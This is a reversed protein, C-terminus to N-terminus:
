YVEIYRTNSLVYVLPIFSLNLLAFMYTVPLLHLLANHAIILFKLLKTFHRLDLLETM